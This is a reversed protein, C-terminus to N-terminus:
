FSETGAYRDIPLMIRFTTGIGQRSMVTTRGHHAEVVTKVQHLGLGSGSGPAKTTFFPDFIKGLDPEPIGPGTDAIDVWLMSSHVGTLLTITGKSGIAEAANLLLNLFAHVLQGSDCQIDPVSGYQKVIEARYGLESAALNLTRDLLDNINDEAMDVAEAQSFECLDARMKEVTCASGALDTLLNDVDRLVFEFDLQKHTKAIKRQASTKFFGLYKHSEICHKQENLVLRLDALHTKLGNLSDSIFHLPTGLQDAIGSALRGIAAAKESLMLRLRLQDIQAQCDRLAASKEAVIQTRHQVTQTIEYLETTKLELLQEATERASKEEALQQAIDKPAV